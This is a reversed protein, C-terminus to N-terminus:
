EPGEWRLLLGQPASMCAADMGLGGAFILAEGLYALPMWKRRWAPIGAEQFLNKLTRSPRNAAPRLREQGARPRLVLPGARLREPDLGPGPGHRAEVVLRGRWAPVAIAAEGRWHLTLPMAPPAGLRPRLELLRGSRCVALGGFDLAPHAQNATELVQGHLAELRAASPARVGHLALWHRLLNDRRARSLAKMKDLALATGEGGARCAALDAEALEALLSQAAQAHRATRALMGAYGPFHEALGPAIAHRLANRRYRADANSEDTVHALGAAALAGELRARPVELLPRGLAVGEGLLSHRPSFAAMGSLGPLGAGRLLQLLVTEAQDDQHHATLLLPVGHARCLDGLAAYRAIRATEEIGRGDDAAVEVRREDFVAGCAEALARCHAAWADANPSLGHHIHFAFLRWGHAAAHRSALHLLVTSDLGGSLAVAVAPLAAGALVPAPMEGLARGFAEQLAPDPEAGPSKRSNAM